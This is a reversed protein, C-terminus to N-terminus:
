VAVDAAGHELQDWASKIERIIGAADIIKQPDNHRNAQMLSDSCFLYLNALNTAVEGGVELDLAGRLAGLLEIAKSINIGKAAVDKREMAGHAMAMHDLLKEFMMQVLRYPSAVSVRNETQNQTYANLARQYSM